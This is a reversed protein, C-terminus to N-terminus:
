LKFNPDMVTTYTISGATVPENDSNRVISYVTPRQLFYHREFFLEVVESNYTKKLKNFVDRVERDRRLLTLKSETSRM